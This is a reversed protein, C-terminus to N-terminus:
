DNKLYIMGNVVCEAITDEWKACDNPPALSRLSTDRTCLIMCGESVGNEECCTKNFTLHGKKTKHFSILLGNTIQNFYPSLINNNILNNM